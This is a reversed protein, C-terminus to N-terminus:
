KYLKDKKKYKKLTRRFDTPNLNTEKLIFKSFHAQDTFHLIIAIEKISISFDLLLRKAELLLRDKILLSASKGTSKKLNINLIRPTVYMMKAYFSIKREILFNNELLKYFSQYFVDKTKQLSIPSKLQIYQKLKLFILELYVIIIEDNFYTDKNIEDKINNLLTLIEDFLTKNLQLKECELVFILNSENNSFLENKFMLVYGYSKKERQVCHVKHSSVFHISNDKISHNKFDIMHNGGGKIFFFLENYNHRHPKSFDYNNTKYVLEEIM